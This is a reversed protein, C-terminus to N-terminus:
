YGKAEDWVSQSTEGVSARTRGSAVFNSERIPQRVPAPAITQHQLPLLANNAPTPTGLPASATAMPPRPPGQVPGAGAVWGSAKPSSILSLLRTEPNSVSAPDAKPMAKTVSDWLDGLGKSALPLLQGGPIMGALPALKGANEAIADKAGTAKQVLANAAGPAAKALEEGIIAPAVRRIFGGAVTDKGAERMPDMVGPIAGPGRVPEIKAGGHGDDSIRIQRGGSSPYVGPAITKGSALRVTQGVPNSPGIDVESAVATEQPMLGNTPAPAGVPRGRGQPGTAAIRTEAPVLPAPAPLPKFEGMGTGQGFSNFTEGGAVGDVSLGNAEQYARLAKETKSGFDGDITGPSFGASDLLTQLGYVEDGKAGRKLTSPGGGESKGGAGPAFFLHGGIEATQTMKRAWSPAGKKTGKQGTMGKPAYYNVAGGTNDAYEGALVQEAIAKAEVYRPDDASVRVLDNGSQGKSNWASFQKPAHAVSYLSDGYEGAALRNQM